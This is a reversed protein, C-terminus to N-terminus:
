FNGPAVQCCTLGMDRWMDVVKQRDEFIIINCQPNIINSRGLDEMIDDFMEAKVVTDDRYDGDKRMRLRDTRSEWVKLLAHKILWAVTKSRVNETRGTCIYVKDWVSINLSQYIEIIPMNPKDDICAEHFAKWNKPNEKLFHQRHENLALTGDLDFIAIM